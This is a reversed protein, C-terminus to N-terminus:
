AVSALVIDVPLGWMMKRKSIEVTWGAQELWDQLIIPRCDLVAPWRAHGWEYLRCVLSDNRAMAVIGLRGDPGLVRQCERLVAPIEDPPFLELTFSLFVANFTRARFPLRVADGNLLAAGTEQDGAELRKRTVAIMGPSLEVGAVLGTSGASHALALLAHGTGFGIELVKEGAGVGLVQIGLDTFGKESGAFLDYWRSLRNYNERTQARSTKSVPTM